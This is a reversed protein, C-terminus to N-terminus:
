LRMARKSLGNAVGVPPGDRGDDRAPRGLDGDKGKVAVCEGCVWCIASDGRESSLESRGYRNHAHQM